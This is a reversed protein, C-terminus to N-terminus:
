RRLHGPRHRRHHEGARQYDRRLRQDLGRRVGRYALRRRNRGRHETLRGAAREGIRRRSRRARHASERRPDRDARRQLGDLYITVPETSTGSTVAINNSDGNYTAVWYDTGAATTTYGKSTAVGNVLPENADTFLPTGTANPNSYLKFTVTGTPNFGGSVTAQDAISSGVTAATEQRSTIISPTAPNITVPEAATGSSRVPQQQIATTPRSGTTPERPQRRIGKSTAMGGSLPENADTFLPTGSNQVTANSYLNFTVTGTPNDGGSVTAKDAISSGVTASAPQRTTSISPTAPNITVPEASAGSSVSNNNLNGNYTAVWYDTGAATATYGKSTAMGGSLPENADTFLLTSSNQVTASSYLNFTVTGTPNDGGSVTAKDAISSGVTASAPQRTTSISPTAPNITVSEASAGSSVSNNNSDGHYTAVWYDTGLASASYGASTATGGSLAESDTFLLTSSNQVAASSYLNFTVTGSPSDGGSVTAKDAISSGVTASAPEQITSITPTASTVHVPASAVEPALAGLDNAFFGALNEFSATATFSGAAPYSVTCSAVGNANTTASCAPLGDGPMISMSQDAVPTNGPEAVLLASVVTPSGAVANVAPMSLQTDQYVPISVGTSTSSADSPNGAFSAVVQYAGQQSPTFTASALGTSDTTIPIDTVGSPGTVAFVVTQNAVGGGGSGSLTASVTVSQGVSAM